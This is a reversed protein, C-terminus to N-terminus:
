WAVSYGSFHELGATFSKTSLSHTAPIPAWPSTPDAQYWLGLLQTEIAADASDVVGDGNLDGGAGGYWIQLEAAKGFTLGTPQFDVAINNSNVTATVLVSDGIALEGGGPVYVPDTMTLRLFPQAGDGATYNIQISRSQGRVAWFTAQYTTLSLNSPTFPKVVAAAIAWRAGKGATWGMGLSAAGVATSGAGAIDADEIGQVNNWRQTQGYVPTLSRASGMMAVTAVVVESSSSPVTVRPDNSDTTGGVSSFGRLPEVSDVGSFSVAGGVIKSRASLTVAVTGAGSSPANLYWLEVRVANESDKRAGLLSLPSGKYTVGTVVTAADRISVGVVLLRHLGNGVDHSWSLSTVGQAVASSSQDVAAPVVSGNLFAGGGTFPVLRESAAGLSGYSPQTTSELRLFHPAQEVAVPASLNEACAAVVLVLGLSTLFRRVSM